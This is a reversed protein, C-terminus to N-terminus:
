GNIKQYISLNRGKPTTFLAAMYMSIHNDSEINEIRTPIYKPTSNSPWIIIIYKAKQPGAWINEM